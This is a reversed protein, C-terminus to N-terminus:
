EVTELKLSNMLQDFTFESPKHKKKIVYEVFWTDVGEFKYSYGTYRLNDYTLVETDFTYDAIIHEGNFDTFNVAQLIVEEGVSFLPRTM